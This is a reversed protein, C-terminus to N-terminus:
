KKADSSFVFADSFFEDPPLGRLAIFDRHAADAMAPTGCAYVQCGSLDAYDDLVAQHVFGTRGQWHDSELAESLVPIFRFNDHERQWQEPLAMQYLDARRRGGWYLTMPRKLGIHFAHEIMGKVPAFGTGSAVFVIPKGSDERLFFTGLPGEIRLIDREKMGHFVHETFNGGAVYRVHLQLLEDDHPASALSFSRHRGDNLLINLYQGALFKLKEAAPLKLHLAMVDPALKEMKQVRCPLKKVQIDKIAGVERCEIALASLPKAQCFLALGQQKEAETLASEQYKGYDVSGSLIKNKCVGCAGDRCGYSLGFGERLAAELITEGAEVTLVHNSPKVTVQFSM